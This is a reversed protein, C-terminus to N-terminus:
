YHAFVFWMNYNIINSKIKSIMEASVTKFMGNQCCNNSTLAKENLFTEKIGYMCARLPLVTDYSSFHLM